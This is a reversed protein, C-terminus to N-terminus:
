QEHELFPTRVTGGGPQGVIFAPEHVSIGAAIVIPQDPARLRRRLLRRGEAL